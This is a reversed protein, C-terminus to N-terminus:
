RGAASKAAAGSGGREGGAAAAAAAAAALLKDGDWVGPPLEGRRVRGPLERLLQGVSGKKGQWGRPCVVCSAGAPMPPTLAEPLISEPHWPNLATNHCHWGLVGVHCLTKPPPPLGARAWLAKM